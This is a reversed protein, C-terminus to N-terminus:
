KVVERSVMNMLLVAVAMRIAGIAILAAVLIPMLGKGSSMATDTPALIHKAEGNEVGGLAKTPSGKCISMPITM